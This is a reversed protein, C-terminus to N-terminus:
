SPRKLLEGIQLLADRSEKEPPLVYYAMTTSVDSRRLIAQIIKPQTGCAYLNTALSRRFAHWGKWQLGEAKLAPAIVRRAVNALNLSIAQHEGPFMYMWKQGGYRAWHEQLIDHLIPIVPVSTASSETKAGVIHTRWLTRNVTLKTGDYDSWHLGRLEALRLGAFAAVSIAAFAKMDKKAV